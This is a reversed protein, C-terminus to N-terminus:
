APADNVGDGTVAVFHGEAQLAEVLDLKQLPEVRAFVPAGAVLQRLAVEDSKAAALQRGTVAYDEPGAFGLQRAIALATAPHDGTLMRVQIGASRCAAIAEPVEPRVPDILGALGLLKLGTPAGDPLGEGPPIPQRGEAVAIVRYGEAALQEAA